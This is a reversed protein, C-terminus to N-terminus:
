FYVNIRNKFSHIFDGRSTEPDIRENSKSTYFYCLLVGRSKRGEAEKLAQFIRRKMFESSESLM